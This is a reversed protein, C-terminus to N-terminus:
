KVFEVSNNAKNKDIFRKATLYTNKRDKRCDRIFQAAAAEIAKKKGQALGYVVNKLLRKDAAAKYIVDILELAADYYGAILYVLLIVEKDRKTFLRKKNAKDIPDKFYLADAWLIREETDCKKRDIKKASIYRPYLGYLLFGNKQLYANLESFTKQKEYIHMFEAECWVAMCQRALVKKAGLLIDYEVGQCDLKIFEGIREDIYRRSFAIQDLSKTPVSIIKKVPLGSAGYRTALQLNPMLLSSCNPNKTVFFKHRGTKNYLASSVVTYKAFSSQGCARLEEAADQNPDFCMAHTLSAIPMILPFVGEAAGADVFSLPQKIFSAYLGTKRFDPNEAFTNVM